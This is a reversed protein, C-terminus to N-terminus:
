MKQPASVGLVALGNHLVQATAAVLALRALKLATDVAESGSSVLCVRADDMPARAVIEASIREAPENTFREIEVLVIRVGDELRGQVPVRLEPHLWWM